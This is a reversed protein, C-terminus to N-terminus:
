TSYTKVGSFYDWLLTFVCTKLWSPCFRMERDTWKEWLATTHSQISPARIWLPDSSFFPGAAVMMFHNQINKRDYKEVERWGVDAGTWGIFSGFESIGFNLALFFSFPLFTKGKVKNQWHKTVLSFVASSCFGHHWPPAVPPSILWFRPLCSAVSAAPSIAQAGQTAIQIVVLWGYCQHADPGQFWGM